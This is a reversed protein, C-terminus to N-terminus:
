AGHRLSQRLESNICEAKNIRTVTKTIGNLKGLASSVIPWLPVPSYHLSSIVFMHLPQTGNDM